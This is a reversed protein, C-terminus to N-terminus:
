ILALRGSELDLLRRKADLGGAYGTLSGNKGVVRHCPVRILVPNRAMAVGVTRPGDDVLGLAAAIAGYTTTEGYGVTDLAALIMRLEPDVRRLDVPVTFQTRTGAFYEDLERRAQDLWHHGDRTDPPRRGARLSINTLGADSATVTLPGLPSDYIATAVM